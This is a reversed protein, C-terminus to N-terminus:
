SIVTESLTPLVVDEVWLHFHQGFHQEFPLFPLINEIDSASGTVTEYEGILIYVEESGDLEILVGEFTFM